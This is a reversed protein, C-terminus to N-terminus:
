AVRDALWALTDAVVDEKNTENFIEHRADTYVILEVDTLGGRELYSSALLEASRVGGFPDDSGIQILLPLDNAIAKAPKGLLRHINHLLPILGARRREDLHRLRAGGLNLSRARDDRRPVVKKQLLRRERVVRPLEVRRLRM